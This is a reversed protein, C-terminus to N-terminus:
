PQVGARASSLLREVALEWTPLAQEVKFRQLGDIAERSLRLWGGGPFYQDMLTRWVSVPLRYSAEEHWAVPEVRLGTPTATTPAFTTGSFLFLVPVEGDDLAHLYKSGAVEFDYTCAVPLDIETSGRFAPVTAAVHTWLFPRLTDGWRPTEGFLELLRAEEREDYRRRQPEIRLQARLAVAHVPHHDAETLRLRFLLTPVAAYPEARADLVEFQLSTV